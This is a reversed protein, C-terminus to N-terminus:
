WQLQETVPCFNKVDFPLIMHWQYEWQIFFLNYLIILVFIIVVSLCKEEICDFETNQNLPFIYGINSIPSFM